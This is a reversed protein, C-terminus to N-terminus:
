PVMLIGAHCLVNEIAQPLDRGKNSRKVKMKREQEGEVRIDRCEKGEGARTM